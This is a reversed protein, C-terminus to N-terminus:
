NQSVVKGVLLKKGPMRDVALLLMGDAARTHILIARGLAARRGATWGRATAPLRGQRYLFGVHGKGSSVKQSRGTTGSGSCRGHAGGGARGARGGRCKRGRGGGANLVDDHHHHLVPREIM